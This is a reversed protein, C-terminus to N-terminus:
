SKKHVFSAGNEDYEGKSFWMKQFESYTGLISGGTWACYKRETSGTAALVRVKHYMETLGTSLREYVGSMDSAGGTLCVGAFMDRHTSPDCLRIADLVLGDLGISSTKQGVPPAGNSGATGIMQQVYSLRQDLGSGTAVHPLEGFITQEAAVFKESTMRVVNGDPLEWTSEPVVLEALNVRPSDYARCLGAKADELLRTISYQEFSQTIGPRHIPTAESHTVTGDEARTTTRKFSWIPSIKKGATALQTKLAASMAAGGIDTRLFKDKVLSGELIPVASIGSHGMDLVIGTTRGSAYAALVASRALYLAPVQFTEFFLEVLRERAARGNHNPEAYLLGNESSDVQLESQLTHAVLAEFQTWNDVLGDAGFPSVIDVKDRPYTVTHFGARFAAVDREHQAANNRPDASDLADCALVSPILASPLDAGSIGAKVTHSGADLVVSPVTGEVQYM